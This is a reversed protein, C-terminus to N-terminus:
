HTPQILFTNVLSPIESISVDPFSEDSVSDILEVESRLEQASLGPFKNRVGSRDTNFVVEGVFEVFDGGFMRVGFRKLRTELSQNIGTINMNEKDIDLADIAEAILPAAVPDEFNQFDRRLKERVDSSLSVSNNTLDGSLAKSLDEYTTVEKSVLIPLEADYLDNRIPRYSFVPTDMLASEIGTTSSRHIVAKAEFIWPRVGGERIVHVNSINSFRKSYTTTDERPHPRLVIDCDLDSALSQVADLYELMIKNQYSIKGQNSTKVDTDKNGFVFNTAVLIYEDGLMKYKDLEEAYIHRLNESLLDFRPNGTAQVVDYNEVNEQLLEAGHKGWTCHLDVHKSMEEHISVRKFKESGCIAGESEIIVLDGGSETFKKALKIKEKSQSLGGRIWVDPEIIDLGDRLSATEGIVVDHNKKTLNLALWLSARLDRTKVEVPLAIKM